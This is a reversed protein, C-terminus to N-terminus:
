RRKEVRPDSIVGSDILHNAEYGYKAPLQWAIGTEVLRQFLIRVDDQELIGLEWDECAESLRQLEHPKM